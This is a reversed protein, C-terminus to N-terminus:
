SWSAIAAQVTGLRHAIMVITLDRSLGEVADMVAMETKSDLASTAEDLVIVRANKYLARPESVSNSAVSLRVGREGVFSNYGNPM